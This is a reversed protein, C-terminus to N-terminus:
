KRLIKDIEEFEKGMNLNLYITYLPVAWRNEMDPALKRFTQFYPLAKSYYSKISKLEKWKSKRNNELKLAKNYYALGANLYADKLTDNIEILQNCVQVCEDYRGINLLITSKAFLFVQNKSDVVLASDAVALAKASNKEVDCYYDILRPFFFSFTPYKKFGETLTSVYRATDNEEKYTEALYQLMYEYHATDKLAWYTHKLTEKSKGEKYACYTAWYAAQPLLKDNTAYKYHSFMQLDSCKLYEDFFEYAQAYKQKYTFYAGGNYLNPRIHDLFEAHRERYKLKVRGKKDPLSEISDFKELVSFLKLTLNFLQVTDYKEKLYLKENGQIYQLKLADYLTLWVKENSKNASDKLLNEMSAVAKDLDKGSKIQDQAENIVKKQAMGTSVCFVNIFILFIVIKKIVIM